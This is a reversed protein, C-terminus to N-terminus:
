PKIINCTDMDLRIREANSGSQIITVLNGSDASYTVEKVLSIDIACSSGNMKNTICIPGEWMDPNVTENPGFLNVIYKGFVLETHPEQNSCIAHAPSATKQCSALLLLPLLLFITKLVSKM